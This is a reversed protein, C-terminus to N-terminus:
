KDNMLRFEHEQMRVSVYPECNTSTSLFRVNWEPGLGLYMLQGKRGDLVTEILDGKKYRPNTDKAQDPVRECGVFLLLAIFHLPKM